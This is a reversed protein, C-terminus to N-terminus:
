RAKGNTRTEAELAVVGVVLSTGDQDVMELRAESQEAIAQIQLRASRMVEVIQDWGFRDVNITSWNAAIEDEAVGVGAMAKYLPDIFVEPKARYFSEERGRHSVTRVLELCGCDFLVGVHYSVSSLSVDGLAVERLTVASGPEDELLQLLQLRLPHSLAHGLM